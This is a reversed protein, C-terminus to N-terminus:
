SNGYIYVALQSGHSKLTQNIETLQKHYLNSELMM